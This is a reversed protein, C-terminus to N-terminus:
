STSKWQQVEKCENYGLDAMEMQSKVPVNREPSLSARVNENFYEDLVRRLRARSSGAVDVSNLANETM